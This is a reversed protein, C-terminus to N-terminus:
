YGNTIDPNSNLFEIQDKRYDDTIDIIEASSMSLIKGSEYSPWLPLATEEPPGMTEDSGATVNMLDTPGNPDSFHVFNASCTM